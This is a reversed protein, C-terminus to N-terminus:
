NVVTIGNHALQFPSLHSSAKERWVVVPIYRGNQYAILSILGTERIRDAFVALKKEANAPTAYSKGEFNWPINM